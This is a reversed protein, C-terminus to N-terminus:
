QNSFTHIQEQPFFWRKLHQHQSERRFQIPDIVNDRNSFDGRLFHSGQSTRYLKKRRLNSQMEVFRGYAWAHFVTTVDLSTSRTAVQFKLYAVFISICSQQDKVQQREQVRPGDDFHLWNLDKRHTNIQYINMQVPEVPEVEKNKHSTYENNQNYSKETVMGM